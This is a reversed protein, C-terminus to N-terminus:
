NLFYTHTWTGEAKYSNRLYYYSVYAIVGPPAPDYVAYLSGDRGDTVYGLVTLFHGRGSQNWGIRVGVPRGADIEKKVIRESAAGVSYNAPHGAALLGDELRHPADCADDHCQGGCLQPLCAKAIVCQGTAQSLTDAIYDAVAAWCWNDREQVPPPYKSSIVSM